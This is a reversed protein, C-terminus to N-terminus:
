FIFCNVKKKEEAIILRLFSTTKNGKKDLLKVEFDNKIKLRETKNETIKNEQIKEFRTHNNLRTM